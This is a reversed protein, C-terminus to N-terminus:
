FRYSGVLSMTDFDYNSQGVSHRIFDGGVTLNPTVDFEAGIGAAFNYDDAEYSGYGYAGTGSISETIKLYSLGVLAYGRFQETVPLKGKLFTSFLMDLEVESNLTGYYTDFSNTDDGGFTLHAEVGLYKNYDVGGRLTFGTGEYSGYDGASFDWQSVGGGIYVDQASATSIMGVSLAAGVALAIVSKKM